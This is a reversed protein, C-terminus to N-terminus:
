KLIKPFKTATPLQLYSAVQYVSKSIQLNKTAAPLQLYRGPFDSYVRKPFKVIKTTSPLQLYRGPLSWCLWTYM